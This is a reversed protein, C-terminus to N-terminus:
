GTYKKVCFIVNPVIMKMDLIISKAIWVCMIMSSSYSYPLCHFGHLFWTVYTNVNQVIHFRAFIFLPYRRHDTVKYMCTEYQKFYLWTTEM